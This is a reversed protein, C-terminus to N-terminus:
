KHQVRQANSTPSYFSPRKPWDTNMGFNEFEMVNPFEPSAAACMWMGVVVEGGQHLPM